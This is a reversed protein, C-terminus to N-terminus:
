LTNEVLYKGPELIIEDLNLKIKISNFVDQEFDLYSTLRGIHAVTEDIQQTINWIKTLQVEWGFFEEYLQQSFEELAEKAKEINDEATEKKKQKDEIKKEAAEMVAKKKSKSWNKSNIKNYDVVYAGTEKDYKVYPALNVKQKKTKKTKKGKKDTTTTDYSITAYNATNQKKKLNKKANKLEKKAKAIAKKDKKKKAKKLKDEADDVKKKAKDISKQKKADPGNNLVKLQKQAKSKM